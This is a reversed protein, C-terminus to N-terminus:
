RSMTCPTRLGQGQNSEERMWVFSALDMSVCRPQGEGSSRIAGSRPDPDLGNIFRTEVGRSMTVFPLPMDPPNLGVPLGTAAKSTELEVGALTHGAPQAERM